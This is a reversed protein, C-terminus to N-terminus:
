LERLIALGLQEAVSRRPLLNKRARVTVRVTTVTLQELTVVVDAGEIRADLRGKGPDEAKVTGQRRTERAAAEWVRSFSRDEVTFAMSDRTLAYGAATGGAVWLAACGSAGLALALAAVAILFPPQKKKQM